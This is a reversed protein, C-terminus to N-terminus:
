AELIPPLKRFGSTRVALYIIGLVAWSAGFELTLTGLSFFVWGVILFGLLPVLLFRLYYAASGAPYREIPAGNRKIIYMYITLFNLMWFGGIAGFNILGAILNYPIYIALIVLVAVILTVNWHPTGFRKNIAGFFAKPLLEDRGMGYLIRAAAATSVVNFVATMLIFGATYFIAFGRGAAAESVFYLSATIWNPDAVNATWDKLPLMGFYGTGVYVIMAVILSLYVARPIDRKPHIAEESLTTVADYGLYSLVSISTAAMLANVNSFRLPELTFMTGLGVGGFQASWAWVGWAILVVAEQIVLLWLGLTAMLEVGVINMVFTFIALVAIFVWYPIGPLVQSLYYSASVTCLAPWLL